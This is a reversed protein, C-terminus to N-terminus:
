NYIRDNLSWMKWLVKLLYGIAALFLAGTIFNLAASAWRPQNVRVGEVALSPSSGRFDISSNTVAGNIKGEVISVWRRSGSDRKAGDVYIEDFEGVFNLNIFDGPRMYDRIENPLIKDVTFQGALGRVTTRSLTRVDAFKQIEPSTVKLLATVEYHAVSTNDRIIPIPKCRFNRKDIKLNENTTVDYTLNVSDANLLFRSSTKGPEYLTFVDFRYWVDEHWKEHILENKLPHFAIQIKGSDLSPRMDILSAGSSNVVWNGYNHENDFISMGAYGDSIKFQFKKINKLFVKSSGVKKVLEKSPQRYCGEFLYLTANLTREPNEVTLTMGEMQGNWSFKSTKQDSNAFVGFGNPSDVSTFEGHFAPKLSLTFDAATAWFVNKVVSFLSLILLLSLFIPASILSIIEPVAVNNKIEYILKLLLIIILSAVPAGIVNALISQVFAGFDKTYFMTSIADDISLSFFVGISCVWFTSRM